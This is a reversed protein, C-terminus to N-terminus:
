LYFFSFVIHYPIELLSSCTGHWTRVPPRERTFCVHYGVVGVPSNWKM